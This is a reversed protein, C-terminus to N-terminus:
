HIPLPGYEMRPDADIAVSFAVSRVGNGGTVTMSASMPGWPQAYSIFVAGTINSAGIETTDWSHLQVGRTASTWTKATATGPLENGIVGYLLNGHRPRPLSVWPAAVTSPTGGAPTMGHALYPGAGGIAIIWGMARGPQSWEWRWLPPDSARVTNFFLAAHCNAGDSGTRLLRWPAPVTVTPSTAISAIVAILLDGPRAESPSNLSVTDANEGPKLVNSMGTIHIPM